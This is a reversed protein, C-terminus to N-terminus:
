APWITLVIKLLKWMSSSLILVVERFESWIDGQRSPWSVSVVGLFVIHWRSSINKDSMFKQRSAQLSCAQAKHIVCAKLQTKSWMIHVNVLPKFDRENLDVNLM